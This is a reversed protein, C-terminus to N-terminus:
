PGITIQDGVNIEEPQELRVEKLTRPLVKSAKLHGALAKSVKRATGFGLQVAQYGDKAETKVATVVVPGATIRTVPVRRGDTTAAQSMTLKKGLIAKMIPKGVIFLM